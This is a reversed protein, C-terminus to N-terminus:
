GSGNDTEADETSEAPRELCTVVVFEITDPAGLNTNCEEGRGDSEPETELHGLGLFEGLRLLEGGDLRGGEHAGGRGEVGYDKVLLIHVNFVSTGLGVRILTAHGHNFGM